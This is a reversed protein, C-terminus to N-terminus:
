LKEESQLEITFCVGDDKNAASLSGNHHDEIIMKSMYLGLGTGNKDYKTSFYPDFIKKIIEEDIGGGNDCIDLAVGDNTDKTQIWITADRSDKIKFNDEANKFINLIVQMIESDLLQLKKSSMYEEVILINNIELSNKIINLAKQIPEKIDVTKTVKNPKYFDRFDDITTTLSQTLGEIDSLRASFYTQCSERGKKEELDYLDLEIQLKMDISTSAIAGLPQRWQHAIMSIMEGMQALRYQKILHQEQKCKLTESRKLSKLLVIMISSILILIIIVTAIIIVISINKTENANQVFLKAKKHAYNILKDVSKNLKEVHKDAKIQNMQVAEYRKNQHMLGVVEKRIEKWDEFLDYSEQIENKDGLYRKFVIAFEKYIVKESHNVKEIAAQLEEENQSLVVDKMYRHMSVLHTQIIQTSNTVTLPSDYLKQTLNSLELMKVISVVGILILLFGVVLFSVTINKDTKNNIQM